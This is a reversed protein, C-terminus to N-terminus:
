NIVARCDMSPYGDQECEIKSLRPSCRYHFEGEVHCWGSFQFLSGEMYM